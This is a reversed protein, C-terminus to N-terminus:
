SNYALYTRRRELKLLPKDGTKTVLSLLFQRSFVRYNLVEGWAEDLLRRFVNGPCLWCVLQETQEYDVM